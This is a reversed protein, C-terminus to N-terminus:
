YIVLMIEILKLLELVNHETKIKAACTGKTVPQNSLIFGPFLTKQPKKGDNGLKEFHESFWNWIVL